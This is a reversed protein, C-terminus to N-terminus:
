AFDGAKKLETEAYGAAERPLLEQQCYDDEHFYIERPKSM